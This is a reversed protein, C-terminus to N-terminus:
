AALAAPTRPRPTYLRGALGATKLARRALELNEELAADSSTAARSALAELRQLVCLMLSSPCTSAKRMVAAVLEFALADNIPQAEIMEALWGAKEESLGSHLSQHGIIHASLTEVFFESWQACAPLDARALDFLRRADSEGLAGQAMLAHRLSLVDAVHISGAERVSHCVSDISLTSM